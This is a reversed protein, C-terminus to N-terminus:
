DFASVLITVAPSQAVAAAATGSRVKFYEWGALEPVTFAQGGTSAPHSVEGDSNYLDAYDTGNLSVQFTIAASDMGTPLQISVQRAMSSHFADSLSETNAIAVSGTRRVIEHLSERSTLIQAAM